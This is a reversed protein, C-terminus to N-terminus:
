LGPPHPKRWEKPRIDRPCRRELPQRSRPAALPDGSSDPVVAERACRSHHMYDSWGAGSLSMVSDHVKFQCGRFLRSLSTIMRETTVPTRWRPWLRDHQPHQVSFPTFRTKEVDAASRGAAKGDRTEGESGHYIKRPGRERRTFASILRAVEDDGAAEPEQAQFTTPRSAHSDEALFGVLRILAGPGGLPQDKAGAVALAGSFVAAAPILM